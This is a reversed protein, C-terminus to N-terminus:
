GTLARYIWRGAAFLMRDAGSAGIVQAGIPLGNPGKFAPVNMCPTHMLSWPSVITSDGTNWGVPAEGIAAPALLVDYDAFLTALKSRCRAAREQAARYHAFSYGKGTKIKGNRLDESLANWHQEIERAFNHVFERCSIVRHDEEAHAFEPPM